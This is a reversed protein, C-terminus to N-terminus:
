AMERLSPQLPLVIRFCSGEGLQSEVELRGGHGRVITESISLGLGTGEGVDKTTFFPDFIKSLHIAAIGCGNDAVEVIMEQDGRRTSIAIRGSHRGTSEIAQVANVLLNLLVQSIQSSVCPVRPSADHEQVVDIGGRRLRGRLIELSTEVLDPLLTDMRKPADTRALGRLSHVIRTVRDVGERTRAILRPLNERVYNLDIEEALAAAQAAVEPDVRALRNLHAQHLEVLQMLGTCDRELVALNNGVYALPNNIEHAVGASLQGISALKENQVLMARYRHRETLDRLAGLFQVHEKGDPGPSGLSVVSLALELPFDSGDKRRGQLEKAGRGIVRPQRTALYRQFGRQHLIQFEEAMLTTLPRGLIEASEYGFMQQAAPNFLTIRGEQDAVIIADQTSETLQRYRRESEALAEEARKRETVDWFIGQTGIINGQADHIPTKVVQVYIKTKDPLLHEEVVELIAGTELVRKDDRLYKAALELPFLDFDTKGLLDRLPRKLTTCYRQNAFTLRSERDKRFINQPLCDVLSQYLAESDRLAKEVRQRDLVHGIQSGLATMMSLLDHDPKIPARHFFEIVGITESGSKIPFAYGGTLKEELAVQLRPFNGDRALDATVTLTGAKWVRGPLGVGPAFAMRRTMAEFERAELGPRHWTELCELHDGGPAVLFISAVDAALSQGLVQLIERASDALATGQALTRTVAYQAERLSEARKHDTIDRCVVVGGRVQGKEDRLPRGIISTWLGQPAQQHRVFMEVDNVEEGRISRTLPLDKAPFPTVQDPLYLGYREPWDASKTQTSGLGFMREAAPNFVLFQENADAVIVADGMNELISRLLREQKKLAEEAQKRDTIDRMVALVAPKGHFIIASTNIDVPILRGDKTRHRGECRFTGEHLQTELREQFGAAFEPDDIDSTNLTLLQDRSYGLRRCAAPNAELINGNQDHVFVADDIGDFLAGELDRVPSLQGTEVSSM